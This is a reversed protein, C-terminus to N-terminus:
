RIHYGRILGAEKKYRKFSRESLGTAEAWEDKDCGQIILLTYEDNIIQKQTLKKWNEKDYRFFDIAQLYLRINLNQTAKSTNEKVWKAIELREKLPVGKVEKKTAIEFIIKIIEERTFALHYKLVRSEIARLHKNSSPVENLLIIMQGNFVFSSPIEMKKTTHYEVINGSNENLGAKIMNLVINNNLIDVDDFVVLSDRAQYMKEYFRMPTIHGSVFFYDKINLRKLVEKVRYSKGLSTEGYLLLGKAKGGAVMEIYSIPYEYMKELEKSDKTIQAIERELREAREKEQREIEKQRFVEQEAEHKQQEARLEAKTPQRPPLLINLEAEFISKNEEFSLETDLKAEGDYTQYDMDVEKYRSKVYNQLQKIEKETIKMKVM